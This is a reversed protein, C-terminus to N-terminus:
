NSHDEDRAEREALLYDRLKRLSVAVEYSRSKATSNEPVWWSHFSIAENLIKEIDM